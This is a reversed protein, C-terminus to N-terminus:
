RPEATAGGVAHVAWLLPLDLTDAVGTDALAVACGGFGAGTLRAGHIGPITVLHAVLQDLAHTSVEFDERLSAHSAAMLEGVLTLDGERLARACEIVRENESVVHHARRRLVDDGMSLVDDITADRFPGIEAEAEECQSRRVGYNAAALTREQGSHVVVIEIGDPIPVPNTELSTCDILLACGEVGGASALHDMIGVGLGTARREAEQCMLAIELPPGDEGIALASAVTLAASSSLGAGIPLNSTVFGSGGREPQAVSVVGAFYRAWVPRGANPNQVDRPILAPEPDDNSVLEFWYEDRQDLEITTWRDIAAPLVFGGTYDTHDGILNVRGPARAVILGRPGPKM